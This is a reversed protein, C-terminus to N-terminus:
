INSTSNNEGIHLVNVIAFDEGWQQNNKAEENTKYSKESKANNGKWTLSFGWLWSQEKIEKTKHFEISGVGFDFM